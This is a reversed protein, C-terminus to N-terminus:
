VPIPVVKAIRANVEINAADMGPVVDDDFVVNVGKRFVLLHSSGGFHFMGIEQGKKVRDGKNVTTEVTSVDSMGLAIFAMLGIASNDAMIWYIARTCIHCMYQQAENFLLNEDKFYPQSFYTGEIFEIDYIYGEVPSHLRHYTTPSLFGQYVTGGYFSTALPSRNLIFEMSYRQEKIWFSDYEKVDTAIKLPAAECASVIVSADDEGEVPRAGPKLERVFFDDFSTYGYHPETPECVYTEVFDPMAELAEESFWGGPDTASDTLVYTSYNSMLYQGWENLINKFLVNVKDNLFLTNGASTAMPLNLIANMPVPILVDSDFEPASNVCDNILLIGEQWTEVYIGGPPAESAQQTYMNHYCMYITPDNKIALLLEAVSPHLQLETLIIKRTVNAMHSIEDKVKEYHPFYKNMKDFQDKRNIKLKNLKKVVWDNISKRDAPLWKAAKFSKRKNAIMKREAISNNTRDQERREM